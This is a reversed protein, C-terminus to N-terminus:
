GVEPEAAAAPDSNPQNAAPTHEAAASGELPQSEGPVVFSVPILGM